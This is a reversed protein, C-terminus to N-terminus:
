KQIILKTSVTQKNGTKIEAFYLGNQLSSVDIVSEGNQIQKSLLEEGLINRITLVTNEGAQGTPLNSYNNFTIHVTNSAPNPYISIQKGSDNILDNGIGVPINGTPNRKYYIEWNGDRYDEWVIHVVSDSLAIFPSNSIGLANTLRTDAGWSLGADTSQKYYIEYNGDRNDFWVVHVNSGSVAISPYESDGPDNTLRTDAGWTMGGDTSRKYYIEYNNSDDRNDMWVIYVVSDNLAICPDWSDAPDNTLRKDTGWTLGGDTSRKYYVDGNGDRNDEWVVHVDSGSAVVCPLGSYSPNNTLRIDPSWSLGGDTSRKYYIESGLPGTADRDDMWTVHLVSGSLSVCADWSDNPDSTLPTDTGWTLGGDTSRKYYINGNGDRYDEWIIHVVNGSLVISPYGSYAPDNTLRTDPGWSLGGDTSRKYYIEYNNVGNRNDFFVVHVTDGSTAINRANNYSTWSSFPNNTLRVDLQWQAQSLNAAFLVAAFLFLKKM